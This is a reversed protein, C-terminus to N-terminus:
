VRSCGSVTLWHARGPAARGAPMDRLEMHVGKDLGLLGPHLGVKGRETRAIRQANVDPHLFAVLLADLRELAHADGTTAATDALGEGDALDRVADADLADERHVARHDTSDLHHAAAAHAAGLQVVEAVEGALGRADLFLLHTDGHGGGPRGLLLLRYRPGAMRQLVISRSRRLWCPGRSAPTSSTPRPGRAPGTTAHATMMGGSRRAMAPTSSEFRTASGSRMRRACLIRSDAMAM